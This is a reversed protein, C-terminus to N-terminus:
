KLVDKMLDAIFGTDKATDTHTPSHPCLAQNKHLFRVERSASM